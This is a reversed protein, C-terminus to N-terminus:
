WIKLWQVFGGADGARRVDGADKELIIVSTGRSLFRRIKHVNELADWHIM